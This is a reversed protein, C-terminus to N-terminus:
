PPGPCVMDFTRECDDNVWPADLCDIQGIIGDKADLCDAFFTPDRLTCRRPARRMPEVFCLDADTRETYDGTELLWVFDTGVYYRQLLEFPGYVGLTSIRREVVSPTRDRLREFICEWDSEMLTSLSAADEYTLPQCPNPYNCARLEDELREIGPTGTIDFCNCTEPEGPAGLCEQWGVPVHEVVGCAQGHLLFQNRGEPDSPVPRYYTATPTRPVEDGLAVCVVFDERRGRNCVSDATWYPVEVCGDPCPDGPAVADCIEAQEEPSLSPAERTPGCAALTGTLAAPALHLLTKKM